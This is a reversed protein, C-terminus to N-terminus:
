FLGGAYLQPPNTIQIHAVAQQIMQEHNIRVTVTYEGLEDIVIEGQYVGTRRSRHIETGDIINMLLPLELYIKNDKIAKIRYVNKESLGTNCSSSSLCDPIQDEGFVIIDQIKFVSIDDVEIIKDGKNYNGICKIQTQFDDISDLIKEQFYPYIQKTTIGNYIYTDFDQSYLGFLKPDTNITIAFYENVIRQAM